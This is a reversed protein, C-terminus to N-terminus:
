KPKIQNFNIERAPKAGTLIDSRGAKGGGGPTVAFKTLGGLIEHCSLANQRGNVPAAVIKTAM